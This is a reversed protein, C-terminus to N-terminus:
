WLIVLVDVVLWIYIYIPIHDYKGLFSPQKPIIWVAWLYVLVSGVTAAMPAGCPAGSGSTATSGTPSVGPSTSFIQFSQNFYTLINSFSQLFHYFNIYCPYLGPLEQPLTIIASIHAPFILHLNSSYFHSKSLPILPFFFVHLLMCFRYFSLHAALMPNCRLVWPKGSQGRLPAEPPTEQFVDSIELVAEEPSAAPWTYVVKSGGLFTRILRIMRRMRIMNMILLDRLDSKRPTGHESTSIHCRVRRVSVMKRTMGLQELARISDCRQCIADLRGARSVM